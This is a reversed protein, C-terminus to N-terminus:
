PCNVYPSLGGMDFALFHYFVTVGDIGILKFEVQDTFDYVGVEAIGTYDVQESFYQDGISYYIDTIRVGPALNFIPALKSCDTGKAMALGTSWVRASWLGEVGGYNPYPLHEFSTAFVIGPLALSVINPDVANTNRDHIKISVMNAEDSDGEVFVAAMYYKATTGDPTKLTWEINKTFDLVTGSEPTITAGPALTIIPALKTRDTGKEMVLHISWDNTGWVEPPFGGYSYYPPVENCRAEVIGPLAFSVIYPDAECSHNLIKISVMKDDDTKGEKTCAFSGATLLTILAVIKITKRKM